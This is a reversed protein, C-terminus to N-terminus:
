LMCFSREIDDGEWLSHDTTWELSNLQSGAEM